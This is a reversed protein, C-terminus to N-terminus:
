LSRSRKMFVNEADCCNVLHNLKNDDIRVLDFGFVSEFHHTVVERVQSMSIKQSLEKEMSTVGVDTLGCPNIWKFPKLSLNVNLAFGHFSVGRKISIGVSGLKKGAVWIGRNVPNRKAPIGRDSATRLMIEELNAVYDIVKLGVRTLDIIPYVVLQGPGHFTVDGGREVPIVPIKKRVLFARSAKLNEIGARRGLTFVPPHELMIVVDNEIVGTQRALVFSRQLDLAARYEMLSLNILFCTNGSLVPM